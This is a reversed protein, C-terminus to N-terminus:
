KGARYEEPIFDKASMQKVLISVRRNSIDFPNGTNRLRRDAYGTVKEVQGEWFGNEELIRRSANARDSSLEWNTYVNGTGYKRSDTHGEIDVQNPLKGIEKAIRVLLEMAKPKVNASGVEFFMSESSEILEIRLGEKTMEIKISSLIDKMDPKVVLQEKIFNEFEEKIKEVRKSASSSDKIAQQRIKEILSDQLENSLWFVFNDKKKGSDQGGGGEGENKPMLNLDVPVARKGTIYSFAGPDKFYSVVQKKIQESQGLIWMVIFFAMMATVFDAYAVKWAGGHGGHGGHGKKKKIIIPEEKHQKQEAAM